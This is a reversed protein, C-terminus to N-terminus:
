ATTRILGEFEAVVRTYEIVPAIQRRTLIRGIERFYWLQQPPLANFRELTSVGDRRIDRVLSSLNHLKDCAVVLLTSASKATETLKIQGVEIIQNPGGRQQM